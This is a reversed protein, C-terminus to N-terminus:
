LFTFATWRGCVPVLFWCTSVTAANAASGACVIGLYLKTKELILELENCWHLAGGNFFGFWVLVFYWGKVPFTHHARVSFFKRLATGHLHAMFSHLVGAACQATHCPLLSSFMACWGQHWETTQYAVNRPHVQGLSNLCVGWQSHSYFHICLHGWVSCMAIRSVGMDSCLKTMHLQWASCRFSSLLMCLTPKNGYALHQINGEKIYMFLIYCMAISSPTMCSSKCKPLATVINEREQIMKCWTM